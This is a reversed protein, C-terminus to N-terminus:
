GAGIRSNTRRAGAAEPSAAQAALREKCADSAFRQGPAVPEACGCACGLPAVTDRAAITPVRLRSALEV